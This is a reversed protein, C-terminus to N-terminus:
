DDARIRLSRLFRRDKVSVLFPWPAEGPRAPPSTSWKTERLCDPCTTPVEGCSAYGIGCLKCWLTVAMPERRLLRILALLTM